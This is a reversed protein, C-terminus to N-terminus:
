ECIYRKEREKEVEETIDEITLPINKKKNIFDMFRKELTLDDLYKALEKREEASLQCILDKIQNIDIKIVAPM